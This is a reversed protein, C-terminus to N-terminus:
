EACAIITAGAPVPQGGDSAPIAATVDEAPGYARATQHGHSECWANAVIRGCDSKQALCDVVGYGEQDSVVYTAGPAAHAAAASLAAALVGSLVPTFLRPWLSADNKAAALIM